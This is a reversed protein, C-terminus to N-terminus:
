SGPGGAYAAPSMTNVNKRWQRFNKASNVYGTGVAFAVREVVSAIRVLRRHEPWRAALARSAIGTLANNIASSALVRLSVELNIKHGTARSVPRDHPFGSVTYYPNDEVYGAAFFRQSSTWDLSKGIECAVAPAYTTPDTLVELALSRAHEGLPQAQSPAAALAVFVAALLATKM